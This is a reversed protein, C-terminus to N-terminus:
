PVDQGVVLGFVRRGAPHNVGYAPPTCAADALCFVQVRKEDLVIEEENALTERVKELAEEENAALVVAEVFYAGYLHTTDQRVLYVGLDTSTGASDDSLERLGKGVRCLIADAQGVRDIPVLFERYVETYWRSGDYYHGERDDIDEGRRYLGAEELLPSLEQAAKVLAEFGYARAWDDYGELHDGALVFGTFEQDPTLLRDDRVVSFGREKLSGLLERFRGPKTSIWGQVISEYGM